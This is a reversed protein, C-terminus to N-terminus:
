ALLALSLARELQIFNFAIAKMEATSDDRLRKPCPFNIEAKKGKKGGHKMKDTVCDLHLIGHAFFIWDKSIEIIFLLAWASALSRLRARLL